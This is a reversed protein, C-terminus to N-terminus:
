QSSVSHKIRRMVEVLDTPIIDLTAFSTILERYDGGNLRPFALRYAAWLKEKECHLFWRPLRCAAASASVEAGGAALRAPVFRSRIRRSRGRKAVSSRSRGPLLGKHVMGHRVAHWENSKLGQSRCYESFSVWLEKTQWFNKPCEREHETLKESNVDFM